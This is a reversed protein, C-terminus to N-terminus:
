VQVQIPLVRCQHGGKLLGKSTTADGHQEIVVEAGRLKTPITSAIANKQLSAKGKTNGKKLETRPSPLPITSEVVRLVQNCDDVVVGKQLVQESVDISEGDCSVLQDSM